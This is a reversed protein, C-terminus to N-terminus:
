KNLMKCKVSMIVMTTRVQNAEFQNRVTFMGTIRNRPLDHNVFNGCFYARPIGLLNVNLHVVHILEILIFNLMSFIIDENKCEDLVSIRQVLILGSGIFLRDYSIRERIFYRGSAKLETFQHLISTKM